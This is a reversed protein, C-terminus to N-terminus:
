TSWMQYNTVIFLNKSSGFRGTQYIDQIVQYQPL